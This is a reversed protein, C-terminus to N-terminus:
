LKLRHVPHRVVNRFNRLSSFLKIKAWQLLKLGILLMVAVLLCDLFALDGADARLGYGSLIFHYILEGFSTGLVCIGLQNYFKKTLLITVMVLLLSITIVRSFIIWVPANIEWLLMSVYGITITFSSFLHYVLRSQQVLMLLSGLILLLLIISFHFGDVEISINSCCIALLLWCALATRKKSKRMFFTIIIWIMWSFWYFIIGSTM